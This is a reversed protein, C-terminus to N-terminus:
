GGQRVLVAVGAVSCLQVRVKRNYETGRTIQYDNNNVGMVSAGSFLAIERMPGGIGCGVDLVQRLLLVFCSPPATLTAPKPLTTQQQTLYLTGFRFM